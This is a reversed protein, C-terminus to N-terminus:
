DQRRRRVWFFSLLAVIVVAVIAGGFVPWNFPAEVEPPPAVPPAVLAPPTPTPAPPAPAPPVPELVVVIPAPPPTVAIIAFTTFHDVLATIINNKTDVGCELEVWESAKEDYYALVLDGEDVGEPLADPDYKWTFTIPPDFTTGDPGFDYALGIIHADEPPEPPSEDVAAELNKLPRGKADLAITGKPIKITLNGDESTAEVTEMVEGKSSIYFESEEGFLDTDTHRVVGGGGGSPPATITVSLNLETPGGGAEFDWTQGTSVGNVYFTIDGSLGDGQVLLRPSEIGYSGGKTTVPNQVAVITGDSVAASVSSGDPAPADNIEVDGYFAHPLAPIAYVPSAFVLLVL